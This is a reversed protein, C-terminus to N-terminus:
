RVVEVGQITVSWTGDEAQTPGESVTFPKRVPGMGVVFGSETWEVVPMGTIQTKKAGDQRHWSITGDESLDLTTGDATWHGVLDIRDAPVAVPDFAMDDLDFELGACGLGLGLTIASLALRSRTM